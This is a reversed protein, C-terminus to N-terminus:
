RGLGSTWKGCGPQSHARGWCSRRKGDGMLLTREGYDRGSHGDYVHHENVWGGLGSPRSDWVVGLTANHIQEVYFEVSARDGPIPVGSLRCLPKDSRLHSTCGVFVPPLVKGVRCGAVSNMSATGRSYPKETPFLRFTQAISRGAVHM